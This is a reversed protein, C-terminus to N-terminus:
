TDGFKGMDKLNLEEIPDNLTDRSEVRTRPIEFKPFVPSWAICTFGWRGMQKKERIFKM